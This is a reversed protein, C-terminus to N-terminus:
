GHGPKPFMNFYRVVVGYLLFGGAIMGITTFIEVFSPTYPIPSPEALGIWTVVLREIFTGILAFVGAWFPGASHGVLKSLLIGLPILIGIIFQLWALWGFADPKLLLPIEESGLWDGIKIAAYLM